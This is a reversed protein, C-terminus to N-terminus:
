NIPLGIATGHTTDPFRSQFHPEHLAFETTSVVFFCPSNLGPDPPKRVWESRTPPIPAGGCVDQPRCVPLAGTRWPHRTSAINSPAGATKTCEWESVHFHVFAGPSVMFDVVTSVPPKGSGHSHTLPYGKRPWHKTQSGPARPLM